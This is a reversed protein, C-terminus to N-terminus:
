KFEECYKIAQEIEDKIKKTEELNGLYWREYGYGDYISIMWGDDVSEFSGSDTKESHSIREVRTSDFFKGPYKAELEKRFVDSQDM